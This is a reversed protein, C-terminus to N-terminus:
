RGAVARIVGPKLFGVFKDADSTSGQFNSRAYGDPSVIVYVPLTVTKTLKQELLQNAEDNAKYKRSQSGTHLEGVLVYPKLSDKSM